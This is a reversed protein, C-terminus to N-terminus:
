DSDDEDSDFDGKFVMQGEFDPVGNSTEEDSVDSDTHLESSM